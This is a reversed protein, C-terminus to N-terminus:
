ERQESLKKEKRREKQLFRVDADLRRYALTDPSAKRYTRLVVVRRLVRLSGHTNVAALLAAHRTPANSSLTYGDIRGDARLRIRVPADVATATSARNPPTKPPTKPPNKAPTKAPTKVTRAGGPAATAKPAMTNRETFICLTEHSGGCMPHEVRDAIRRQGDHREVQDHQAIEDAFHHSALDLRDQVIGHPGLMDDRNKKQKEEHDERPGFERILADDLVHHDREGNVPPEPERTARVQVDRGDHERQEHRRVQDTDGRLALARLFLRTSFLTQAPAVSQGDGSQEDTHEPGHRVDHLLAGLVALREIPGPEQRAVHLAPLIRGLGGLHDRTSSYGHIYFNLFAALVM